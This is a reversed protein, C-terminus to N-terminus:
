ISKLRRKAPASADGQSADGQSPAKRRVGEAHLSDERQEEVRRLKARREAYAVDEEWLRAARQEVFPRVFHSARRAVAFGKRDSTALTAEIVASRGDGLPTAHTEVVSGVGEGDVITMTICRPSPSHFTADVEVCLSGAVKFSVRLLIVDDDAELVRLQRFSHPHYHVGHWPDLRNAIVDEPDCNAEMRIVGAIYSEPRPSLVPLETLEERTSALQVWAMVGDDHAGFCRWGGHGESGLSLGHWPCLLRGGVVSGESLDAGMHPCSRPAVRLVGSDRWAVLEQGAVVFGRPKAGIQESADLVFWGGANRELASALARDIRAPIAQMWDPRDGPFAPNSRRQPPRRGIHILGSETGESLALGTRAAARRLTSQLTTVIGM